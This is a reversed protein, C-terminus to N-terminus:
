GKFQLKEGRLQTTHIQVSDAFSYDAGVFCMTRNETM